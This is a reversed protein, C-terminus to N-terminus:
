EIVDVDVQRRIRGDQTILMVHEVLRHGDADRIRACFRVRDADVEPEEVALVEPWATTARLFESIAERGVMRRLCASLDPGYEIWEADDAYFGLWAAANRSEFAARFRDFDFSPATM